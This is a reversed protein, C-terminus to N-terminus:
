LSISRVHKRVFMINKEGVAYRQVCYIGLCPQMDVQLSSSRQQRADYLAPARFQGFRRVQNLGLFLVHREGPSQPQSTDQLAHGNRSDCVFSRQRALSSRPQQHVYRGRNQALEDKAVALYTIM